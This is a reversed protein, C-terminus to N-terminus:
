GATFLELARRVVPDVQARTPPDASWPIRPEPPDREELADLLALLDAREPDDIPLALIRAHLRARPGDARAPEVVHDPLLGQRAPIPAGSPLLYQAVTLKLASGDANRYLQQVSGKGYTRSGVLTARGADRLAGAVIESASASLGNVLVVVQLDAPFGGPTARHVASGDRRGQVSVISGEDVFLDVVGVAEDLLGGTNDRLDLILGAWKRTAADQLARVDRELELAGDRQFDVVRVYMVDGALLASETAPVHVEDRRPHVVQPAEWGPRLVEIDARQGRDGDFLAKVGDLDMGALPQGDIRLIRDGRTLGEREAPSGPLVKLVVVGEDSRGVELGFGTASGDSDADLAAVAEASMWRSHPDLRKVMGDMAGDLLVEGDIPEVYDAEIATLVRAFRELGAYPDTARAVAARGTWTGLCLGMLFLGTVAITARHPATREM